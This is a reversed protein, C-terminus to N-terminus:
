SIKYMIFNFLYYILKSRDCMQLYGKKESLIDSIDNLSTDIKTITEKSDNNIKVPTEGKTSITALTKPMYNIGENKNFNRSQKNNVLFKLNIPFYHHKKYIDKKLITVKENGKKIM